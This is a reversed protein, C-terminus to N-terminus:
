DNDPFKKAALDECEQLMEAAMQPATQSDWVSGKGMMLLGNLVVAGMYIKTVYDERNREIEGQRMLREMELQEAKKEAKRAEYALKGVGDPRSM